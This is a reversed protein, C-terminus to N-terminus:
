LGYRKRALEVIKLVLDEYTKGKYEIMKVIDSYEPNLGPLSNIEIVYPVGDEIRMDIRAYDRLEMVRFAKKAVKQVKEKLEDSLRAPIYYNTRDEWQYKVEFSYIKPIGAPLSSFDIELIPLVELDPYNGIVGVTLERGDIYENIMIPPRFEELLKELMEELEERSEIFSDNHIGRSSGEDKPKVMLPYHFTMNEIDELEKVGMFKPTKVGSESLVKSSFLKNYCLNHAVANSGTYPIKALELISPLFGLSNEGGPGNALNFVLDYEGYELKSFLVKNFELIDCLYKKELVSKVSNAVSDTHEDAEIREEESVYDSSEDRVIAIKLFGRWRLVSMMGKVSPIVM